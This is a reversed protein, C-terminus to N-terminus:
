GGFKPEPLGSVGVDLQFLAGADPEKARQEESLGQWASTVFLMDFKEGGFGACTVNSVPMSVVRDVRGDPAYRVLRGGAFEGNWVFGEADVTSGDPRGPEGALDAFVRKNSIVGDDIDFDFAWIMRKPTDAFYMTRDDPSFCIGNPLNVHDFIRTATQDPDIRYLSGDENRVTDNMSGVWFRGRRDCRGDNLRNDKIGEEPDSLKQRASKNPEFAYLGDEQALMFGGAHRIAYSGLARGEVLHVATEGTVPDYSQLRPQRVDIWWLKKTQGDWIPMEGVRNEARVVPEIQVM